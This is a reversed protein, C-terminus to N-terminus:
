VHARRIEQGYWRGAPEGATVAGTYYGEMGAGVSDTLYRASTGGRISLM